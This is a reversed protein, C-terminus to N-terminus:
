VSTINNVEYIGVVEDSEDSDDDYLLNCNNGEWENTVINRSLGSFQRYKERIINDLQKNRETKEFKNLVGFVYNFRKIGKKSWGICNDINTYRNNFSGKKIGKNNDKMQKIDDIVNEIMVIALAKDSVTFMESVTKNIIEHQFYTIQLVCM